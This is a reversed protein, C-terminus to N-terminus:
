TVFGVLWTLDRYGSSQGAKCALMVRPVGVKPWVYILKGFGYAPRVIKRQRSVDLHTTMSSILCSGSCRGRAAVSFLPASVTSSGNRGELSLFDDELSLERGQM